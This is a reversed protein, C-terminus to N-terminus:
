HLTYFNHKYEGNNDDIYISKDAVDGSVDNGEGQFLKSSPKWCVVCKNKEKM